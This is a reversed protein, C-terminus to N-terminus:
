IIRLVMRVRRMDGHRTCRKSRKVSLIFRKSREVSLVYGAQVSVDSNDCSALEERMM